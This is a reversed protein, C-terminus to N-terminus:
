GDFPYVLVHYHSGLFLFFLIFPVTRFTDIIEIVQVTSLACHTASDHLISQAKQFLLSHHDSSAYLAGLACTAYKLLPEQDKKNFHDKSLLPFMYNFHDFYFESWTDPFHDHHFDSLM